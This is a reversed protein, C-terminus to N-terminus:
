PIQVNRVSELADTRWLLDREWWVETGSVMQAKYWLGVGQFNTRALAIRGRQHGVMWM